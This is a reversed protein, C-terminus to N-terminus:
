SQVEADCLAAILALRWTYMSPPLGPVHLLGCRDCHAFWYGGRKFVRPHHHARDIHVTM